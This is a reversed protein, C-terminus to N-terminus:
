ASTTCTGGRFAPNARRLVPLLLAGLLTLLALVGLCRDVGISSSV